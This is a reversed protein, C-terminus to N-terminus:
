KYTIDAKARDSDILSTARTQAESNVAYNSGLLALVLIANM